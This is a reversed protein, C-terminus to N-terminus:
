VKKRRTKVAVFILVGVVAALIVGSGVGAGINTATKKSIKATLAMEEVVEGTSLKCVITYNGREEPYFVFKSGSVTKLYEDNKYIEWFVTTSPNLKDLNGVTYFYTENARVGNKPGDVTLAVEEPTAYSVHLRYTESTYNYYGLKAYILFYGSETPTYNLEAGTYTKAPKNTLPKGTVDCPKVYWTMDKATDDDLAIFEATSFKRISSTFVIESVDTIKQELAGSKKEIAIEAVPDYSLYVKLSAKKYLSEVYGSACNLMAYNVTKAAFVPSTKCDYKIMLVAAMFSVLPSAMSTGSKVAYKNGDYTTASAPNYNSYNTRVTSVIDTGAAVVDYQTGRVSTKHLTGNTDMNMVGIVNDLVAPSCNSNYSVGDQTTNGAAGILVIGQQYAAQIAANLEENKGWGDNNSSTISIPRTFSMNIVDAGMAAAYYVADTAWSADNEKKSSFSGSGDGAKLPLIKIYRQLGYHIIEKAIIGAVHTGHSDAVRSSSTLRACDDTPDNDDNAFDWGCVDDKKGNEDNDVNDGAIEATNVYLLGDFVSNTFDIGTDIVAIIIPDSKYRDKDPNNKIQADILQLTGQYDLFNEGDFWQNLYQPYIDAAYATGSFGYPLVAAVLAVLIIFAAFKVGYRKVM